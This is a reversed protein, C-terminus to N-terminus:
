RVQIIKEEGAIMLKVKVSSNNTQLERPMHVAVHLTTSDLADLGDWMYIKDIQTGSSIFLEYNKTVINGDYEVECNGILDEIGLIDSDINKINFIIDIFTESDDAYYYMYYGSTNNPLLKATINSKQYTVEWQSTSFTDGPNLIKKKDEEEKVKREYENCAEELVAYNSVKERSESSLANYANQATSIVNESNLTVEGINNILDICNNIALEEYKEEASVLNDYGKIKTKNEESLEDYAMRAASIEDKSDLTVTGIASIKSNVDEIQLNTIGEVASFLDNSNSVLKKQQESLSDYANQAKEIKSQSDLTIEGIQTIIKQVDEAKLNDYKERAEVLGKRNNVHRKCKRSLENYMKEAESIDSGSDLKVEGINSIAMSVQDVAAQEADNLRNSLVLIIVLLIVSFLLILVGIKKVSISGKKKLPYGCEPCMDASDSIEKGCEPCKILAM